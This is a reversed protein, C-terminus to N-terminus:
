TSYTEVTVQKIEANAKWLDSKFVAAYIKINWIHSSYYITVHTEKTVLQILAIRQQALNAGMSM